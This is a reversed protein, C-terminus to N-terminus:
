PVFVSSTPSGTLAISMLRLASLQKGEKLAIQWNSHLLSTADSTNGTTGWLVRVPYPMCNSFRSRRPM